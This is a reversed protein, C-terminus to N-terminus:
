CIILVNVMIRMHYVECIAVCLVGFTTMQLITSIIKGAMPVAAPVYDQAM